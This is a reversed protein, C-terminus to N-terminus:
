VCTCCRGCLVSPCRINRSCRQYRVYIRKHLCINPQITWFYVQWLFHTSFMIRMCIITFLYRPSVHPGSMCMYIRKMRAEQSGVMAVKPKRDCVHHGALKPGGLNAFGNQVGVNAKRQICVGIALSHNDMFTHGATLANKKRLLDSAKAGIHIKRSPCHWSQHEYICQRAM